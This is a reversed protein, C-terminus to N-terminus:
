ILLNKNDSYTAAKKGSTPWVPTAGWLKQLHKQERMASATGGCEALLCMLGPTQAVDPLMTGSLPGAKSLGWSIILKVDKEHKLKENFHVCVDM